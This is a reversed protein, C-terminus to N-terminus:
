FPFIHKGIHWLSNPGPVSYPHHNTLVGPWRLASSPPSTSRLVQRVKERSVHYGLSRLRGTVLSEGVSPTMCQIESILSALDNDSIDSSPDDLM